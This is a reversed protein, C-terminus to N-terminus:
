RAAEDELHRIHAKLEAVDAQLSTVALRLSQSLKREAELAANLYALEKDSRELAGETAASLRTAVGLPSSERRGERGAKILETIFQLLGGGLLAVLIPLWLDSSTAVNMHRM